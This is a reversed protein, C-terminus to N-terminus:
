GTRTGAVRNGVVSAGTSSGVTEIGDWRTNTVRNGIIAGAYAGSGIGGEKTGCGASTPVTVCGARDPAAVNRVDNALALAAGGVGTAAARPAQQRGSRRTGM